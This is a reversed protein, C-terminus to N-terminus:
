AATPNDRIVERLNQNFEESLKTMDRRMMPNIKMFLIMFVPFHIIALEATTSGQMMWAFWRRVTINQKAMKEWAKGAPEAINSLALGLPEDWSKVLEGGVTYVNEVWDAIANDRWPPLPLKTKRGAATTRPQKSPPIPTENIKDPSFADDLAAKATAQSSM